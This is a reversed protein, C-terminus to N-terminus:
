HEPKWEGWRQVRGVWSWVVVHGITREGLPQLRQELSGARRRLKRVDLSGYQHCAARQACALCATSHWADGPRYVAADTFQSHSNASQERLYLEHVCSLRLRWLRRLWWRLCRRLRWLWLKWM